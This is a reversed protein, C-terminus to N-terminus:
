RRWQRPRLAAILTSTIWYRSITNGSACHIWHPRPPAPLAASATAFAVHRTTATISHIQIATWPVHVAMGYHCTWVICYITFSSPLFSFAAKVLTWGSSSFHWNKLSFPFKKQEIRPCWPVDTHRLCSLHEEPEAFPKEPLWHRWIVHLKSRQIASWQNVKAWHQAASDSTENRENRHQVNFEKKCFVKIWLTFWYLLWRATFRTKKGQTQILIARLQEPKVARVTHDM